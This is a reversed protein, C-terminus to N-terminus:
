RTLKAMEAAFNAYEEEGNLNQGAWMAAQLRIQDLEEPHEKWYRLREAVGDPSSEIAGSKSLNILDICRPLPSSISAVGINMYEYLKSPMAEIFAPTSELLSLGVWAGKAIAWSETPALRGHFRVRNNGGSAAVWKSVFEQDAAAVQGVLDFEWDPSLEAVKLMVHLGRSKRLDGIYIARPLESRPGSPTLMSSDPLNRVVLRNRASFPPLQIDAVTTLDARKAFWLASRTDSKAIWGLIGFYRKAWNRDSLLRLYDEFFDVAFKKRLLRASAYAPAVAEPSIAYLIRGRSRFTFLRSRHYRTLLNGKGWSAALWPKRIYLTQSGETIQPADKPNGAAFIEVRLNARM